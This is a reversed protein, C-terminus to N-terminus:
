KGDGAEKKLVLDMGCKPCKGPRDQVVEPHMPCTYRRSNAQSPAAKAPKAPVLDMGCKPCKGPRDQVVEPHMPCTYKTSPDIPRGGARTSRDVEPEPRDTSRRSPDRRVTSKPSGGTSRPRGDTTPGHDHPAPPQVEKTPRQDNTTPRDDTTSGDDAVQSRSGAIRRVADGDKLYQGGAVVVQQGEALGSLIETQRGDSVGVQVEVEHVTFQDDQGEVPEARLVYPTSRASIVGDSPLTRRRIAAAPVRLADPREGVVIEMTLFSGPLFRADRNPVLAEVIGTRAQPDVAPTVSTVRATLPSRDGSRSFVRVRAGVRVRDLDVEAVNAQLRIPRIQAVKLIASAPSVLVGPSILRQTVVGDVQSLIQTYGRSVFASALGARGQEAGARAQAIRQRAARAAAEAARVHAYHAALESATEQVRTRASAIMADAKRIRAEAARVEAQVQRIRAEAQRVRAAAGEAQATARQHEEVSVAGEALLRTSRRLEAAVTENEAQVARFSAEADTVQTQAAALEADAGAREERAAQLEARAGELAGRRMGVEAHAERVAAQAQEHEMQAVAIGQQAMALAARREAVQPQAQSTDLRALLQGRKVRDGAYFPMWTIWGTVRPYVDQEVAAVAQGTYRVTATVPGRRVTALEVPATGPPPPTAMEMAQAEIPTMAGPRRWHSVAYLSGALMAALLLLGGLVQRNLIARLNLRQGTRRVRYLVFLVAAAGIIWPLLWLPSRDGATATNEGTELPVTATAAGQPGDIRVTVTYGGAMAFQAPATYAGPTGPQPTAPEEREGMDMGPMKALVRLRAGEVAKGATDTIRVLVTARGVPVVAPDTTVEVRYPGAQTRPGATATPVTALIALTALLVGLNRTRRAEM